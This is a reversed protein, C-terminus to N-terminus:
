MPALEEVSDKGFFQLLPNFLISLGFVFSAKESEFEHRDAASATATLTRISDQLASTCVNIARMVNNNEGFRKQMAAIIEAHEPRQLENLVRLGIEEEYARMLPNGRQTFLGDGTYVVMGSDMFQGYMYRSRLYVKFVESIGPDLGPMEHLRLASVIDELAFATNRVCKDVDRARSDAKLAEMTAKLAEMDAVVAKINAEFTTFSTVIVKQDVGASIEGISINRTNMPSCDMPPSKISLPRAHKSAVQLIKRPKAGAVRDAFFLCWVVFLISVKM